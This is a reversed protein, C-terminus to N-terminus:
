MMGFQGAIQRAAQIQQNSVQGSQLLYNVMQQPDNVGQPVSFGAQQLFAAPDQRIQAIAQMPNMQGMSPLGNMISNM